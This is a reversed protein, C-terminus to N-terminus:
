RRRLGLAHSLIPVVIYLLPSPPPALAPLAHTPAVCPRCEPHRAGSAVRFAGRVAYQLRRAHRASHMVCAGTLANECLAPVAGIIVNNM